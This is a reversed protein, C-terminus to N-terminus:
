QLDHCYTVIPRDRVLRWAATREDLEKLPLNIAGAIHKWEYEAPPLVEVVQAGAAQLRAVDDRSASAAM